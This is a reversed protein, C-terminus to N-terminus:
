QSSSKSYLAKFREINVENLLEAKGEMWDALQFSFYPALSVGKTGLGNFIILNKHSPHTGLIPRRDSTTPRIGWNQHDVKFPIKILDSLKEELERRAGTSTSESVDNPQYTAGVVYMNVKQTPVLYVGRNFLADPKQDICVLLTEGKLPRIPLWSFYPNKKANLGDCFIINSAEVTIEPTEFEIRETNIRLNSVDFFISQFSNEKKLLDRVGTIFTNVDLYGSSRILIGGLSDNVQNFTPSTFIKEIFDKIQVESSHAMWENQEEISIFPRYIPMSHFIRQGILKEAYSYFQFLYPFLEEAKWSKTMRKGTIPNFLGAAVTSAKNDDPKDFVLIKKGRNLLQIALCSGALGQGVIIHDVKTKIVL